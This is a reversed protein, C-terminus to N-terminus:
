PMGELLDVWAVGRRRRMDEEMEILGVSPVMRLLAFRGRPKM